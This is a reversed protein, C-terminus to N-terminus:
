RHMVVGNNDQIVINSLNVNAEKAAEINKIIIETALMCLGKEKENFSSKWIRIVNGRKEGDVRDKHPLNKLDHHTTPRKGWRIEQTKLDIRFIEQVTQALYALLDQKTEETWKLVHFQRLAIPLRDVTVEGFM